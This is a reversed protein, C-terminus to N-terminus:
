TILLLNYHMNSLSKNCLLISPDLLILSTLCPPCTPNAHWIVKKLSKMRHWHIEFECQSVLPQICHHTLTIPKTLHSVGVILLTRPDKHSKKSTWPLCPWTYIKSIRLNKTGNKQKDTQKNLKNGDERYFLYVARYLVNKTCDEIM